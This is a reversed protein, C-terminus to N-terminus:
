KVFVAVTEVHHTQPYIDFAQVDQVAYGLSQLTATDRALSTIDCAIYVIMRAGSQAIQKCVKAKAGARPPDLVVVDPRAIDANPNLTALTKAVDGIRTEVTDQLDYNQLNKRANHVAINAGEISLMRAQTNTNEGAGLIALPITFLGSGSYLDWIIPKGVGNRPSNNAFYQQVQTIVHNTLAIPAQKHMQWFGSADVNYNFEHNQVIVKEQLLQKGEALKGNAIIAYNDGVANLLTQTEDHNIITRPQPVAIRIRDEPKFRGNWVNHKDAVALLAQSALPMTTIPVRTHTGRRRMIPRGQEDILAEIRTRWHLGRAAEDTNMRHVTVSDLECQGLRRMQELITQQKWRIQGELSV